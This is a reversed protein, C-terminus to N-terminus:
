VNAPEKFPAINEGSTAADKAEEENIIDIVLRACADCIDGDDGFVVREVQFQSKRCFNCFHVTMQKRM